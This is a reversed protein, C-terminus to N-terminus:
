YVGRQIYETIEMFPRGKRIIAYTRFLVLGKGDFGPAAVPPPCVGWEYLERFTELRKSRLLLGIPEDTEELGKAIDLPLRSPAIISTAYVLAKKTTATRLLVARKLLIEDDLKSQSIPRSQDRALSLVQARIQEGSLAALLQTLTGDTALLAREIPQLSMWLERKQQAESTAETPLTLFGSNM